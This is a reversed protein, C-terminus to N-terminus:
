CRTILLPSEALLIATLEEGRGVRLTRGIVPTQLHNAQLPKVDSQLGVKFPAM